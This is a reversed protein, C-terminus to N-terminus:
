GHYLPIVIIRSPDAAVLDALPDPNRAGAYIKAAGQSQLAEVYYKGLGGNAGTVLCSCTYNAHNRRIEYFAVM